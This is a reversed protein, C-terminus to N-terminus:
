VIAIPLSEPKRLRMGGRTTPPKKVGGHPGGCCVSLGQYSIRRKQMPRL